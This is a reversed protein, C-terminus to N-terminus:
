TDFLEFCTPLVALLRHLYAPLTMPPLVQKPAGFMRISNVYTEAARFSAIM